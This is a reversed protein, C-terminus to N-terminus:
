SKINSNEYFVGAVAGAGSGGGAIGTGVDQWKTTYIELSSSNTNYRVTGGKPNVPRELTTGTPFIIGGNAAGVNVVGHDSYLYFIDTNPATIINIQNNVAINAANQQTQLVVIQKQLEEIAQSSALIAANAAAMQEELTAM